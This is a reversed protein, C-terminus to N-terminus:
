RSAASDGAPLTVDRGRGLRAAASSAGATGPARAPNGPLAPDRRRRSPGPRGRCPTPPPSRSPHGPGAPATAESGRPAARPRTETSKLFHDKVPTQGHRLNTSRGQSLPRKKVVEPISPSCDCVREGTTKSGRRGPQWEGRPCGSTSLRSPLRGNRREQPRPRGHRPRGSGAGPCAEASAGGPDERGVPSPEGRGDAHSYAKRVRRDSVRGGAKGAPADTTLTRSREQRSPEPTSPFCRDPTAPLDASLSGLTRPWSWPANGSDDRIVRNHCPAPRTGTADRESGERKGVGRCPPAGVTAREDIARQGATERCAALAPPSGPAGMGVRKAAPGPLGRPVDQRACVGNRGDNGVVCASGALWGGVLLETSSPTLDERRFTKPPRACTPAGIDQRLPTALRPNARFPTSNLRVAPGLHSPEEGAGADRRRPRQSSALPRASSHGTRLRRVELPRGATWPRRQASPSSQERDDGALWRGRSTAGSGSTKLLLAPAISGRRVSPRDTQRPACRDERRTGTRPAVGLGEAREGDKVSPRCRQEARTDIFFAALQSFYHSNCSVNIMSEEFASQPGPGDRPWTQSLTPKVKLRTTRGYPRRTARILM